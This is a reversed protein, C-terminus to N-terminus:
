RGRGLEEISAKRARAHISETLLKQALGRSMSLLKRRDSDALRGTGARLPGDPFRNSRPVESRLTPPRNERALFELVHERSGPKGDLPLRMIIGALEAEVLQPRRLAPV